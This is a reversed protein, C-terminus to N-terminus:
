RLGLLTQVDNDLDKEMMQEKRIMSFIEGAHEANNENLKRASYFLSLLSTKEKAREVCHERLWTKAELGEQISM